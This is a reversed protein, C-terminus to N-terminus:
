WEVPHEATNPSNTEFAGGGPMSGMSRFTLISACMDEGSGLM